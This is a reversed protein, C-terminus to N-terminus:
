DPSRDTDLESTESNDKSPQSQTLRELLHRRHELNAQHISTRVMEPLLDLVAEALHERVTMIRLVLEKQELMLGELYIESEQIKHTSSYQSLWIALSPNTEALQDIITRVAQYTLYSQLVSATDLAIKKPYM